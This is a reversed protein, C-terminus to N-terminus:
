GMNGTLSPLIPSPAPTAIAVSQEPPQIGMAGIAGRGAVDQLPAVPSSFEFRSVAM